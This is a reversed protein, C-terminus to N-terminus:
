KKYQGENTINIKQIIPATIDKDGGTPGVPNACRVMTIIIAIITIKKM